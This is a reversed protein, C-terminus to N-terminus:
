IVVGDSFRAEAEDKITVSEEVLESTTAADPTVEEPPLAKVYVEWITPTVEVGNEVKRRVKAKFTAGKWGGVNKQAAHALRRANPEKNAEAVIAYRDPNRVLEAAIRQYKSGRASPKRNLPGPDAWIIGTESETNTGESM